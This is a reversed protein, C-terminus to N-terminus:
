TLTVALATYEANAATNVFVGKIREPIGSSFLFYVKEDYGINMSVFDLGSVGYEASLEQLGRLGMLAKKMEKGKKWAIMKGNARISDNEFGRSGARSDADQLKM